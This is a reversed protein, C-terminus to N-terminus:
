PAAKQKTDWRLGGLRIGLGTSITISEYDYIVDGNIPTSVGVQVLGFFRNDMFNFKATVAPEFFFRPSPDIKKTNTNSSFESFDVYSLRPTFAVHVVKKNMGFTPQVFIRTYKGSALLDNTSSFITYHGLSSAEGQGYGLFMEFCFSKDNKYYGIAGEYYKHKHYNHQNISDTNRDGYSYNGMLAINNTVAVAAQLDLDGTGYMMSGQFEGAKTFLPTNRVNPVYVPACGLGLVFLLSFFLLQKM